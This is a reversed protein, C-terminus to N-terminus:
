DGAPDFVRWWLEGEAYTACAVRGDELFTPPGMQEFAPSRWDGLVLHLGEKTQVVCAVRAGDPGWAPTGMSLWENGVPAGDICLVCTQAEDTGTAPLYLGPMSDDCIQRPLLISPRWGEPVGAPLAELTSAVYALRAGDPSFSLGAIGARAPGVREDGLFAAVTPLAGADLRTVATFAIRHDGPGGLALESIELHGSGMTTPTDDGAIRRTQVNPADRDGGVWALRESGAVLRARERAMPSEWLLADDADLVQLLKHQQTRIVLALRGDGLATVSEPSDGVQALEIRVPRSTGRRLEWAPQRLTRMGDNPNRPISFRAPKGFVFVPQDEDFAIAPLIAEAKHVARGDVRLEADETSDGIWKRKGQRVRHWAFALKGSPALVPIGYSHREGVVKGDAVVQFDIAPTYDDPSFRGGRRMLEAVPISLVAVFHESDPSVHAAHLGRDRRVPFDFLPRETEVLRIRPEAPEQATAGALTTASALSLLALRLAHTPM